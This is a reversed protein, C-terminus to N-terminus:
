HAARHQVFRPPRAHCAMYVCTGFLKRWWPLKVLHNPKHKELAIHDPLVYTNCGQTFFRHIAGCSKCPLKDVNKIVWHNNYTDFTM